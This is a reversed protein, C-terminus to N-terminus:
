SGKSYFSTDIQWLMHMQLVSSLSGTHVLHMPWQFYLRATKLTWKSGLNRILQTGTFLLRFLVIARTRFQSCFTQEESSYIKFFLFHPQLFRVVFQPVFLIEFICFRFALMYYKFYLVEFCLQCMCIFVSLHSIFFSICVGVIFVHYLLLVSCISVCSAFVFKFFQFAFMVCSLHFIFFFSVFSIVCATACSGGRGANAEFCFVYQRCQGSTISQCHRNGTIGNKYCGPCGDM